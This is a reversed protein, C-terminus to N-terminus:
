ASRPAHAEIEGSRSDWLLIMGTESLPACSMFRTGGVRAEHFYHFHGFVWCAPRIPLAEWLERLGAEGCDDPPGPDIGARLVHIHLQQALADNGRMGIGIGAPCSHTAILRPRAVSFRTIAERIEAPSTRNAAEQPRDIHMAGGLFGVRISDFTAISGRAQYVLGNEAWRRMLGNTRSEALFAHDEHNGCLAHVPLALRPLAVGAGLLAECFGLDGLQIAADAGAARAAEAVRALTPLDGHADGILAIKM